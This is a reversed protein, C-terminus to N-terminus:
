DYYLWKENSERMAEKEVSSVSNITKKEDPSKFNESDVDSLSQKQPSIENDHKRVNLKNLKNQFNFQPASKNKNLINKVIKDKSNDAQINSNLGNKNIILSTDTINSM